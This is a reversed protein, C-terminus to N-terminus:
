VDFKTEFELRFILSVNFRCKLSIKLKLRFMFRNIFSKSDYIKNNEYKSTIDVDWPTM